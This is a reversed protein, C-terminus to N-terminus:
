EVLYDFDPRLEVVRFRPRDEVVEDIEDVEHGPEVVFRRRNVQVAEYEPSSVRLLRRCSRRGCECLISVWDADGTGGARLLTRNADRYAVQNLAMGEKVLRTM